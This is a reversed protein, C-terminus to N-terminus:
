AFDSFGTKIRKVGSIQSESYFTKKHPWKKSQSLLPAAESINLSRCAVARGHPRLSYRDTFIIPLNDEKLASLFVGEETEEVSITRKIERLFADRRSAAGPDPSFVQKAFRESEDLNLLVRGAEYRPM